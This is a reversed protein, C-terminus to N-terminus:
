RRRYEAAKDAAKATAADTHIVADAAAHTAMIVPAEDALRDHYTATAGDEDAGRQVLDAIVRQRRREEACAIFIRHLRREGPLTLALAPVGEVILVTDPELRLTDTEAARRRALRDYRPLTLEIADNKILWPRMAAHALDLDFRELVGPGRRDVDRIWRDLALITAAKGALRCESALVQAFTSKGVKALGGVLVVDGPAIKEVFPRAREALRPYGDLIFEVAAPFDDAIFDPDAKFKGDRGAQGTRVLISRLGARAAALMDATGDGIMWSLRLDIDLVQAADRIMATGPKRCECERKLEAIGGPFGGDPHHPCFFIRDLFAGRAALQTEMRAHIRGLEDVTCDGRAIVSQNTVVVVKYATENLRRVADAVGDFLHMQDPSRIYGPDHNLTGDRDVFVAKHRPALSM